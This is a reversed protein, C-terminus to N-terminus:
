QVPCGVSSSVCTGTDLCCIQNSYCWTTPPFTGTAPDWKGCPVGNSPQPRCAGSICVQGSPCEGNPGCRLLEQEVSATQPAQEEQVGGCGVLAGFGLAAFMVLGRFANMGVM